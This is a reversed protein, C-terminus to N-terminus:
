KFNGNKKESKYCLYSIKKKQNIIYIHDFLPILIKMFSITQYLFFFKPYIVKNHVVNLFYTVHSFSIKNFKSSELNIFHLNIILSLFDRIFLLIQKSCLCLNKEDEKEFNIKLAITILDIFDKVINDYKEENNKNNNVNLFKITKIQNYIQNNLTKELNTLKGDYNELEEPIFESNTKQKMELQYLLNKQNYESLYENINMYYYFIIQYMTILKFKIELDNKNTLKLCFNMLNNKILYSFIKVKKVIQKELNHLKLSNQNEYNLDNKEEKLKIQELSFSLLIIRQQIILINEIINQEININLLKILLDLFKIIMKDNIDESNLLLCIEGINEPNETELYQFFFDFIKNIFQEDIDKNKILFSLLFLFVEHRNQELNLM